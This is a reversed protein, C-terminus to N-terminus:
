KQNNSDFDLRQQGILVTFSFGSFFEYSIVM